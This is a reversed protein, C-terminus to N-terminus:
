FFDRWSFGLCDMCNSCECKRNSNTQDEVQDLNVEEEEPTELGQISLLDAYDWQNWYATSM